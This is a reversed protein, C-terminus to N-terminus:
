RGVPPAPPAGRLIGKGSKSPYVKNFHRYEEPPPLDEMPHFNFKSEFDDLISKSPTSISSHGNRIPPPPPPPGAPTRTSLSSSSSSSSSSPPPPRAGRGAPESSQGRYPPPPPPADRNGNRTNSLPAQPAARRGPPERAPPPPRGGQPSPSSSSSPPPPPAHNRGQATHKKTLSNHRQPLEPAGGGDTQAPGNSLSTHMRYPPPPPPASSGGAAPPRGSSLANKLAASPAPGRNPTPPLPKQASSSPASLKLNPAPPANGRGGRSFPPPPPPASTSHKMGGGPSSSGGANHPRTIDPLSPRHSRQHEPPSPSASRGSPPRPASPRSGPPRLASRGVSGGSSGDGAPRLKPVGGQFLGGMGMPGGGGGGGGREIVPASRDNVVGVKKLRAGKHIDSLLAGRGKAESSSLKPPATNAEHFTPPPPPGPPPPPPPPPM